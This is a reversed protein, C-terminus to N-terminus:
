YHSQSHLISVLCSMTDAIVRGDEGAQEMALHLTGAGYVAASSLARGSLFVSLPSKKAAPVPQVYTSYDTRLWRVEESSIHKHSWQDYCVWDGSASCPGPSLLKEAFRM